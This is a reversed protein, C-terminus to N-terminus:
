ARGKLSRPAFRRVRAEIHRRELPSGFWDVTPRGLGDQAAPHMRSEIEETTTGLLKALALAADTHTFPISESAPARLGILSLLNSSKTFRNGECARVLVSSLCEGPFPETGVVLPKIAPPLFGRVNRDVM